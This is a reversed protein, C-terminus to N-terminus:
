EEEERERERESVCVSLLVRHISCRFGRERESVRIRVSECMKREARDKIRGSM